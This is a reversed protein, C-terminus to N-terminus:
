HIKYPLVVIGKILSKARNIYTNKVIIFWASVTTRTKPDKYAKAIITKPFIVLLLIAPDFTYENLIIMGVM